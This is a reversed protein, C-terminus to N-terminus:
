DDRVVWTVISRLREQRPKRDVEFPGIGPDDAAPQVSAGMRRVLLCLAESFESGDSGGTPGTAVRGRLLARCASRKEPSVFPVFPVRQSPALQLVRLLLEGGRRKARSASWTIRPTM